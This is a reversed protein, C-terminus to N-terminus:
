STCPLLSPTQSKRTRMTQGLTTSPRNKKAIFDMRLVKMALVDGTAKQRVLLVKGYSEKGIMKLLSFDNM